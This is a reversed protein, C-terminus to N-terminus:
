RESEIQQALTDMRNLIDILESDREDGPRMRAHMHRINRRINAALEHVHPPVKAISQTGNSTTTRIPDDWGPACVQKFHWM